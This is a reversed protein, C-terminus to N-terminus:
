ANEPYVLSQLSQKPGELLCLFWIFYAIHLLYWGMLLLIYGDGRSTQFYQQWTVYISLFHHGLLTLSLGKFDFKAARVRLIEVLWLPALFFGLFGLKELDEINTHPALIVLGIFSLPIGVIKLSTARTKASRALLFGSIITFVVLYLVVFDFARLPSTGTLQILMLLGPVSVWTWLLCLLASRLRFLRILQAEPHDHESNM